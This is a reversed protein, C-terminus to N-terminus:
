RKTEDGVKEVTNGVGNIDVRSRYVRTRQVTNRELFPQRYHNTSQMCAHEHVNLKSSDLM